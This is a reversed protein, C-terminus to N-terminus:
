PNLSCLYIYSQKIYNRLQTRKVLGTVYRTKFKDTHHKFWFNHFQTRRQFEQLDKKLEIYPKWTQQITQLRYMRDITYTSLIQCISCYSRNGILNTYSPRQRCGSYKWCDCFCYGESSIILCTNLLQYHIEKLALHKLKTVM